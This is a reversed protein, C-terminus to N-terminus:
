GDHVAIRSNADASNRPRRRLMPISDTEFVLPTFHWGWEAESLEGYVTISEGIHFFGERAHGLLQIHTSATDGGHSRESTCGRVRESLVLVLVTDKEDTKPNEGYGPPGLHVERALRGTLHIKTPSLPACDSVVSSLTSARASDETAMGRSLGCSVADSLPGNRAYRRLRWAQDVRPPGVDTSPGLYLAIEISDPGHWATCYTRLLSDNVADRTLNVPANRTRAPAGFRATLRAVVSDWQARQQHAPVVWEAFTEVVVSDADFTVTQSGSTISERCTTYPARWFPKDYQTADVECTGRATASAVLSRLPGRLDSRSGGATSCAALAVTLYVSPFRNM